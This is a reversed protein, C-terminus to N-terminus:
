QESNQKKKLELNKMKEYNRIPVIIFESMPSLSLTLSLDHLVLATQCNGIRNHTEQHM